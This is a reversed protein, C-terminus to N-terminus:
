LFFLFPNPSQTMYIPVEASTSTPIYIIYEKLDASTTALPIIWRLAIIKYVRAQDAGRMFYWM